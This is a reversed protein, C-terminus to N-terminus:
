WSTQLNADRLKANLITILKRMVATLAVMPKKGNKILREYFEKLTPNSRSASLAAMYLARKVLARGGGTARYAHRQGSDKPHPACGALAAAQRRTLAGLEPMAALLTLATRPGVGKVAALVEYKAKLPASDKVLAEMRAEIAEIQQAIAALMPTITATLAAYRPHQLRQQEMVRMAVLDDRRASLDALLRQAADTPAVRALEAHREAGYRALAAADLADTKGRLRLSRLFHKATLPDARHVAVNRALLDAVLATEYGGTSELVVLSAPLNYAAEGALADFGARDNTFRKPKTAAAHVAVDIWEKSVDIGIFHLLTM